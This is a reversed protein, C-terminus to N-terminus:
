STIVQADLRRAATLSNSVLCTKEAQELAARAREEMTGTPVLLKARLAFETFRLVGDRRELKGEVECLLTKWQIAAARAIARFTLTFCASVAASLLTEPSWLDGPGGFEAPPASQLSVLGPSELRLGGDSEASAKVRYIHPLPHM